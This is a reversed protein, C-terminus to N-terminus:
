MKKNGEDNGSGVVVKEKKKEKKGGEIGQILLDLFLKLM